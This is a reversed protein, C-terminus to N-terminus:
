NLKRTSALSARAADNAAEVWSAQLGACLERVVAAAEPHAALAQMHRAIGLALRPCRSRAHHTMLYILAAVITDVPGANPDPAHM